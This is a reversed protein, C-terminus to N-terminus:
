TASDDRINCPGYTLLHVLELKFNVPKCVYVSTRAHMIKLPQLPTRRHLTEGSNDLLEFTSRWASLRYCRRPPPLTDSKAGWTCNEEPGLPEAYWRNSVRSVLSMVSSMVHGWDDVNGPSGDGLIIRRIQDIISGIIIFIPVTPRVGYTVRAQCPRCCGTFIRAPLWPLIFRPRVVMTQLTLIVGM